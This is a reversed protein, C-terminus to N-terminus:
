DVTATVWLMDNLTQDDISMQKMGAVDFLKLETKNAGTVTFPIAQNFGEPQFGVIFACNTNAQKSTAYRIINADFMHRSCELKVPAPYHVDSENLISCALQTLKEFDDFPRYQEGMWPWDLETITHHHLQAFVDRWIPHLVFRDALIWQFANIITYIEGYWDLASNRFPMLRKRGERLQVTQSSPTPM